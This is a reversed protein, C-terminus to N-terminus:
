LTLDVFHGWLGFEVHRGLNNLSGIAFESEFNLLGFQRLEPCILGLFDDRRGLEDFPDFTM